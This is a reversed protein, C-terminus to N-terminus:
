FTTTKNEHDLLRLSKKSESAMMDAGEKAESDAEEETEPRSGSGTETSAEQMLEDLM